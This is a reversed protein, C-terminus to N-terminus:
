KRGRRAPCRTRVQYWHSLPVPRQASTLPVYSARIRYYSPSPADFDIYGRAVQLQAATQWQQTVAGVAQRMKLNTEGDLISTDMYCLGEERATSLIALDAPLQEHQEVRVVDGVKLDCCCISVFAGGRLVRTPRQNVKRDAAHRDHEELTERLVSFCITGVLPVITSFRGVASLGTFIQVISVALLYINAVRCMQSYLVQPLFSILRRKPAAIHLANGPYHVQDKQAAHSASGPLYCRRIQLSPM